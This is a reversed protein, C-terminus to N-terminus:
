REKKQEKSRPEEVKVLVGREILGALGGAKDNVEKTENPAIFVGEVVILRPEINKVLM